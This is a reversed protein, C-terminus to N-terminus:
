RITRIWATLAYCLRLVSFKQLETPFTAENVSSCFSYGDVQSSKVALFLM